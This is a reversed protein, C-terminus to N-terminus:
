FLVEVPRAPSLGVRLSLALAHSGPNVSTHKSDFFSGNISTCDRLFDKLGIAGDWGEIFRGAGQAYLVLWQLISCKLFM